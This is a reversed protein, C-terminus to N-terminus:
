ALDGNERLREHDQALVRKYVAHIQAAKADLGFTRARIGAGMALHRRRAEDRFLGTIADRLGIVFAEPTDIPLKIGCEANVVDSFGCHDPCIVPVQQNLAELLVTSTLDKLSTIVFLHAHRLGAIAVDRPVQGHWRCRPQLGLEAATRRWRRTKPGSGYVDLTWDFAQALGHLADLLLPLAKGPLHEGSWALRLPEGHRRPIPDKQSLTPPTVECIVTSDIGYTRQIERRIGSTAAIVGGAAAKLARRPRQLLLKQASNVLNRVAYYAAGQVGLAPFLRWPTNELGGIPGWVFPLGLRWLLGPFRFGVLTLQHVLDFDVQSRLALAERYAARQWALYALNVAPRLFSHNLWDWLRSDHRYHWSREAVYHFTVQSLATPEAQAFAEIDPRHMRDTLVWVDHRRAIALVWNWGVASESGLAPNCAYACVLVKLRSM